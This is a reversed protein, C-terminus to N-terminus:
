SLSISYLSKRSSFTKYYYLIRIINSVTKILLTHSRSYLLSINFFCISGLNRFNNRSYQIRLNCISIRRDSRGTQGFHRSASNLSMMTGRYKPLQELKLSNAATFMMGSFFNYLQQIKEVLGIWLDDM